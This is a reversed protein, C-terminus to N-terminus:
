NVKVNIWLQLRWLDEQSSCPHKVLLQNVNCCLSVQFHWFCLSQLLHELFLLNQSALKHLLSILLNSSANGCGAFIGVQNCGSLDVDYRGQFSWNAVKTPVDTALKPELLLLWLVGVIALFLLLELIQIFVIWHVLNELRQRLSIQNAWLAIVEVVIRANKLLSVKFLLRQEANQLKFVWVFHFNIFFVQIVRALNILRLVPSLFVFFLQNLCYRNM